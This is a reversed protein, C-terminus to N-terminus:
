GTQSHMIHGARMEIAHHILNIFAQPEQKVNIRGEIIEVIRAHAIELAALALKATPADPTIDLERPANFNRLKHLVLKNEERRFKLIMVNNTNGDINFRGLQADLKPLLLPYDKPARARSPVTGYGLEITHERGQLGAVATYRALGATQGPRKGGAIALQGKELPFLIKFQQSSFTLDPQLITM